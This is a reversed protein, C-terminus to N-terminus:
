VRFILKVQVQLGCVAKSAVLTEIARKGGELTWTVDVFLPPPDSQGLRDVRSVLNRAGDVQPIL